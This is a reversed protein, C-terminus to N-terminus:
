SHLMQNHLAKCNDIGCPRPDKHEKTTHNQSLCHKCANKEKVKDWRQQLTLNTKATPCRTSHHNGNCFICSKNTKKGSPKAKKAAKGTGSNPSASKKGSGAAKGKTKGSGSSPSEGGDSKPSASGRGNKSKNAKTFNSNGKGKGDSNSNPVKLRDEDKDNAIFVKYKRFFDKVTPDYEKGENRSTKENCWDRWKKIYPPHGHRKLTLMITDKNGKAEPDIGNTVMKTMILSEMENAWEMQNIIGPGRYKMDVLKAMLLERIARPKDFEEDLRAMMKKHADPEYQFHKVMKLAVGKLAALLRDGRENDPTQRSNMIDLHKDRFSRWQEYNNGDFTPHEMPGINYAEKAKEIEQGQLMKQWIQTVKNDQSEYNLTKLTHECRAMAKEVATGYFERNGRTRRLREPSLVDLDRFISLAEEYSRRLRILDEQFSLARATTTAPDDTKEFVAMIVEALERQRARLKKTAKKLEERDGEEVEAEPIQVQVNDTLGGRLQEYERQLLQPSLPLAARAGRILAFDANPAVAAPENDAQVVVEPQEETYVWHERESQPEPDTAGWDHIEEEEEQDRWKVMKGRSKRVAGICSENPDHVQACYYCPSQQKREMAKPTEFIDEDDSSSILKKEPTAPLPDTILFPRHSEDEPIEKQGQNEIEPNLHIDALGKALQDRKAQDDMLAQRRTLEEQRQRRRQEEELHRKRKIEEMRQFYEQKARSAGEKRAQELDAAEQEKKKRYKEAAEEAAKLLALREDEERQLERRVFEDYLKNIQAQDWFQGKKKMTKLEEQWKDQFRTILRPRTTPDRTPPSNLEEGMTSKELLGGPQDLQSSTGPQITPTLPVNHVLIDQGTQLGSVGPQTLPQSGQVGTGALQSVTSAAKPAAQSVTTRTSTGGTATTMTPKSTTSSKTSSKASKSSRPPYNSPDYRIPSTRMRTSRRIPERREFASVPVRPDGQPAWGQQEDDFKIVTQMPNLRLKPPKIPNTKPRTSPGPQPTIPELDLTEEDEDEDEPSSGGRLQSEEEDTEAQHVDEGQLNDADLGGQHCTQGFNFALQERDMEYGGSPAPSPPPSDEIGHERRWEEYEEAAQLNKLKFAEAIIENRELRGAENDPFEHPFKSWDITDDDNIAPLVDYAMKTVGWNERFTPRPNRTDSSDSGSTPASIRVFSDSSESVSQQMQAAAGQPPAEVPGQPNSLQVEPVAGEQVQQGPPDGGQQGEQGGHDQQADLWAQYENGQWDIGQSQQEGGGTAAGAQSQDRSVPVEVNTSKRGLVDDLAAAAADKIRKKM